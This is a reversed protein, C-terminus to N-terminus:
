TLVGQGLNQFEEQQHKPLVCGGEGLLQAQQTRAPSVHRRSGRAGPLQVLQVCSGSAAAVFYGSPGGSATIRAPCPLSGQVILLSSKPCAFPMITEVGAVPARKEPAQLRVGARLKVRDSNQFHRSLFASVANLFICVPLTALGTMGPAVSNQNGVGRVGLSPTFYPLTRWSIRCVLTPPLVRSPDTGGAQPCLGRSRWVRLSCPDM